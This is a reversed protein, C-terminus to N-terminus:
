NFRGVSTPSTGVTHCETSVISVKRTELSKVNPKADTNLMQCNTLLMHGREHQEADQEAHTNTNPFAM